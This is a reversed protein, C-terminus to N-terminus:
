KTEGERLAQLAELVKAEPSDEAFVTIVKAWEEVAEALHHLLKLEKRENAWSISMRKQMDKREENERLFFEITDLLEKFDKYRTKIPDSWGVEIDNRLESLREKTIVEVGELSAM